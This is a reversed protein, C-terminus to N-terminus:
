FNDGLGLGQELADAAEVVLLIFTQLDPGQISGTSMTANWTYIEGNKWLGGPAPNENAVQFMRNADIRDVPGIGSMIEIAADDGQVIVSQTRGNGLDFGFILSNGDENIGTFNAKIYNKVDNWNGM